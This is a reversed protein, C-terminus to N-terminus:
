RTVQANRALAILTLRRLSRTGPKLYESHTGGGANFIRAGFRPSTPNTGFGVGFLRIHPVLGIWDASKRGSWVTAKTRLASASRVAVGPSGFLALEDIPLGHASQACVVTGYSHCLLGLGARPALAHLGTVLSRLAPAASKARATTLVDTSLMSPAHYGLWAIVALRTGPATARAQTYLARAGGGAFKWSDFNGITGDAGPVVIAIRDATRLDGFVEVATGSGRADFSLFTRGPRLFASLTRVRTGDDLQRATALAQGISTRAAAYRADLATLAPLPGPAAYPEPRTAAAATTTTCVTALALAGAITRM